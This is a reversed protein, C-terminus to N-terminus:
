GTLLQWLMRALLFGLTIVGLLVLVLIAVIVIGLRRSGRDVTTPDVAHRELLAVNRANARFAVDFLDGVVPVSGILTDLVVNGVMRLLVPKSAGARAAALIIYGSLAASVADGAGPILGLIADLGVRIKTGPVGVATDLIRALARANDLDRGNPTM